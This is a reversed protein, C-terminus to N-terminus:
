RRTEQTTPHTRAPLWPLLHGLREAKTRLYPLNDAGIPAPAPVRERVLVGARTLAESKAPNNSQLRVAGAGLDLLIAGAAAYDRSDAPLGQELNAQVTDRGQEQLAYARIKASLGTGRGEHGRLYVVVGRGVAAIRALADALQPGCDCRLSAFAEGTLCESHVRVLVDAGGSFRDGGDLGLCLAVHETGAEDSFVMARFKGAPTPLLAVAERQVRGAPVREARPPLAEGGGAGGPKATGGAAMVDGRAAMGDLRAPMGDLRAAMGDLRAPMGDLRAPMGDAVGSGASRYAVLQAVSVLPLGHGAAVTRLQEGRYPVGDPTLMECIVAAPARGAMRALDVGAETHGTRGLVGRPHAVLPFVHGPRALDAPGTAPDALLRITRARDAASIGTSIGAAADVSVTFATGHAETNRRAMPPLDLRGATQATIPACILGRGHTAMFAVIEPTVADAAAVLDGENERDADDTVIVMRGAAIAAVARTVETM